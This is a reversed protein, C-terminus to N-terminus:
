RGADDRRGRQWERDAENEMRKLRTCHDPFENLHALAITSTLVPEDATVDTAPNRAGHEVRGRHFREVDFSSSSWDIGIPEGVRRAQGTRDPRFENPPM